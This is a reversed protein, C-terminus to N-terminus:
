KILVKKGNIINIGTEPQSLKQGQVNYITTPTEAEQIVSAMNSTSVESIMFKSWVEDAQYAELSGKPIFLIADSYTNESFTNDSVAPPTTALCVIRTLPCGEFAQSAISDVSQPLTISTLATSLFAAHGITQVSKGFTVKNLHTQSIFCLAPIETVYDGVEVTQIVAKPHPLYLQEFPGTYELKDCYWGYVLNKGLYVTKIPCDSFLGRSEELGDGQIDGKVHTKYGFSINPTGIYVDGDSFTISQLQACGNFANHHIETVTYPITLSTITSNAFCDRGISTVIFTQYSDTNGNWVWSPIVVEGTYPTDGAVVECTGVAGGMESSLSIINYYFGDYEFDYAQAGLTVAFLLELALLKKLLSKM